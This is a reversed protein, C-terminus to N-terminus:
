IDEKNISKDKKQAEEAKRFKIDKRALLRKALENEVERPEDRIFEGAIGMSIKKPGGEYYIKM